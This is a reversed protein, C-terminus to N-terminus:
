MNVFTAILMFLSFAMAVSGYNMGSAVMDISKDKKCIVMGILEFIISLGYGIYALPTNFSIGFVNLIMPLITFLILTMLFTYMSLLGFVNKSVEDKVLDKNKTVKYGCYECYKSHNDIKRGCKPCKM